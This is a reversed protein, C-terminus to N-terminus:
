SEEPQDGVNGSGQRSAMVIVTTMSSPVRGSDIVTTM